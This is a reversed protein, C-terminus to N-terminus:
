PEFIYNVKYVLVCNSVANILELIANSFALGLKRFCLIIPFEQYVLVTVHNKFGFWGFLQRWSGRLAFFKSARPRHEDDSAGFDASKLDPESGRITLPTPPTLRHCKPCASQCIPRLGWGPGTPRSFNPLNQQRKQLALSDESPLFTLKQRLIPATNRFFKGQPALWHNEQSLIAINHSREPARELMKPKVYSM